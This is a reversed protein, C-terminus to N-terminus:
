VHARGIERNASNTTADAPSGTLSLLTQSISATGDLFLFDEILEARGLAGLNHFLDTSSNESTRSVGTLSYSMSAQVRRSGQSSLNFGPTVSLILADEPNSASQNANDTYTASAGVRPEFRWDVAYAPLACAMAMFLSVMGALPAQRQLSPIADRPGRKNVTAAMTVM